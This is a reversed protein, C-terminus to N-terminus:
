VLLEEKDILKKRLLRILRHRLQGIRSESLGISDSIQRITLGEFYYLALIMREIRGLGQGLFEKLMSRQVAEEPRQAKEDELDFSHTKPNTDCISSFHVEDGRQLQSDLRLYRELSIGMKEAITEPCAEEYLIDQVAIKEKEFARVNRSQVDLERLWDQIAGIIRQVSFSEFRIGRGLDYAEVAKILGYCAAGCLENYSVHGNYRAYRSAHSHALHLYHLVLENRFGTTRNRKYKKWLDVSM